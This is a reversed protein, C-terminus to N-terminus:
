APFAVRRNLKKDQALYVEGMGGSGIRSVVKYAGIQQDPKLAGHLFSKLAIDIAPQELFEDGDDSFKLLSEVECRLELDGGCKQELFAARQELPHDLARKFLEAALLTRQDAM